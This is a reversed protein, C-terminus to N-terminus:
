LRSGSAGSEFVKKKKKPWPRGPVTIRQIETEWIPNYPNAVLMWSTILKKHIQRSISQWKCSFVSIFYWVGGRKKSVPDWETALSAEFEWDELRLKVLVLIVPTCWWAQCWCIIKIIKGKNKHFHHCALCM